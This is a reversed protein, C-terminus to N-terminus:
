PHFGMREKNKEPQPALLKRIAEFLAIVEQDKRDMRRELAALRDALDKHTALVQRLRVFARMIAINIYVAQRSKLVSSLMAIGQETFAYPRARRAGGWSSTVFQSKLNKFEEESLQFMFDNPFRDINRKVAQMLVKPEVGYMRALHNSLMVKNGRIFLIKEEVHQIAAVIERM